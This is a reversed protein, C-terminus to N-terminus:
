RADGAGRVWRRGTVIRGGRRRTVIITVVVSILIVALRAANAYAPGAATDSIDFFLWWFNMLLHFGIPVWINYNWETYLWAFWVAGSATIAFIGAAEMPDGGQSLHGVGFIFAGLLAAPLFGWGAFRFLMGFLFARYLAEEGIGPLVAYQLIQRMPEEPLRFPTMTIYIIPLISTIVGAAFLGTLPSRDLGLVRLARAPGFLLGAVLIPVLIWPLWRYVTLAFLFEAGEPGDTLARFLWWPEADLAFFVIVTVATIILPSHSPTSSM